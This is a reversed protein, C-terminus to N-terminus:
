KTRTRSHTLVGDSVEYYEVEVEGRLFATMDECAEVLDDGVRSGNDHETMLAGDISDLTGPM